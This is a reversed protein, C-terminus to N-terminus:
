LSGAPKNAPMVVLAMAAYHCLVAIRLKNVWIGFNVLQRAAAPMYHGNSVWVPLIGLAHM